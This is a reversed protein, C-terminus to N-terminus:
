VGPPPAYVAFPGVVTRAYGHRVLAPVIPISPATRRFFVFGHGRAAAVERDYPEYRAHPDHPLVAEGSRFSVETFQNEVAVVHEKTAFDVLYAILYDAYVRDLHLRDLTSILPAINRPARPL